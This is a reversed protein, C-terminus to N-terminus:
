GIAQYIAHSLIEEQYSSSTVQPRSQCLDPTGHYSFWLNSHGMRLRAQSYPPPAYDTPDCRRHLLGHHCVWCGRRTEELVM